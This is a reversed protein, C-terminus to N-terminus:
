ASSFPRALPERYSGELRGNGSVGTLPDEGRGEASPPVKIIYNSSLNFRLVPFPVTQERNKYLFHCFPSCLLLIRNYGMGFM